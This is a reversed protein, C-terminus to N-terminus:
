KNPRLFSTFVKATPQSAEFYKYLQTKQVKKKWIELKSYFVIFFRGPFHFISTTRRFPKMRKTIETKKRFIFSFFFNCAFRKTFNSASQSIKSKRLSFQFNGVRCGTFILLFFNWKKECGKNQAWCECLGHMFDFLFLASKACPLLRRPQSIQFGVDRNDPFELLSPIKNGIAGRQRM